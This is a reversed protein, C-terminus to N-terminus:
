PRCVGDWDGVKELGAAAVAEAFADAEATGKGEAIAQAAAPSLLACRPAGFIFLSNLLLTVACCGM